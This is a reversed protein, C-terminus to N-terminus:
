AAHPLPPQHIPPVTTETTGDSYTITLTGDPTMKLHIKKDHAARHHHYKCLLICNCPSTEGGHEQFHVHHM